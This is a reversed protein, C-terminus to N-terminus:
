KSQELKWGMLNALKTKLKFYRQHEGYRNLREMGEKVLHMMKRKDEKLEANEKELQKCREIPTRCGHDKGVCNNANSKILEVAEGFTNCNQQLINFNGSALWFEGHLDRYGTEVDRYGFGTMRDLVTISGLYSTHCALQSDEYDNCIDVKHFYKKDFPTNERIGNWQNVKIIDSM